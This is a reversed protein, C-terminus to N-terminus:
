GEDESTERRERGENASVDTEKTGQVLEGDGDGVVRVEDLRDQREDSAGDDAEDEVLEGLRGQGVVEARTQKALADTERRVIRMVEARTTLGASVSEFTCRRRARPSYGVRALELSLTQDRARGMGVGDALLRAMFWM